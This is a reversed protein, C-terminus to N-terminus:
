QLSEFKPYRVRPDEADYQNTPLGLSRRLPLVTVPMLLGVSFLFCSMAPVPYRHIFSRAWGKPMSGQLIGVCGAITSLVGIEHGDWRVM